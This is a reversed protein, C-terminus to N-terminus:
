ISLLFNARKCTGLQHMAGSSVAKSLLQKLMAFTNPKKIYHNAGNYFTEEIDKEAASTSYVAIYIEKFKEDVRIEKLCDLGNKYPMNLDLFIFHPLVTEKATLYEMLELGNHVMQISHLGKMEQFVEGFLLRDCEDDDALLIRLTTNNM